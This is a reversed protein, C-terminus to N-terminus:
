NIYETYDDEESLDSEYGSSCGFCSRKKEILGIQNATPIPRVTERITPNMVQHVGVGSHQQLLVSTKSNQSITKTDSTSTHNTFNHPFPRLQNDYTKEARRVQEKYYM